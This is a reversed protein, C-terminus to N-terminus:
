TATTTAEPTNEFLYALDFPLPVVFTFSSQKQTQCTALTTLVQRLTPYTGKPRRPPIMPGQCGWANLAGAHESQTVGEVAARMGVCHCVSREHVSLLCRSVLTPPLSM